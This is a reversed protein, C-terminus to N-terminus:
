DDSSRRRERSPIRHTERRFTGLLLVTLLTSLAVTPLNSVAITYNMM